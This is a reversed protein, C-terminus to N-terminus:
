AHRTIESLAVDCEAVADAAANKALLYEPDRRADRIPGDLAEASLGDICIKIHRVLQSYVPNTDKLHSEESDTWGKFARENLASLIALDRISSPEIHALCELRHVEQESYLWQLRMANLIERKLV